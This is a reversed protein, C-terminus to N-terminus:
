GATTAATRRCFTRSTHDVYIFQVDDPDGGRRQYREMPLGTKSSNPTGFYAHTCTAAIVALCTGFLVLGPVQRDLGILLYLGFAFGLLAPITFPAYRREFQRISAPDEQYGDRLLDELQITKM